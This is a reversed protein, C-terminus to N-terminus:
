TISLFLFNDNTNPTGKTNADMFPEQSMKNNSNQHLWVASYFPFAGNNHLHTNKNLSKPKL